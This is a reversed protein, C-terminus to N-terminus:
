ETQHFGAFGWPKTLKEYSKVWHEKLSLIQHTTVSLTFIQFGEDFGGRVTPLPTM